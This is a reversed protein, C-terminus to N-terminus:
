HISFSTDPYILKALPPTNLSYAFCCVTEKRKDPPSAHHVLPFCVARADNWLGRSDRSNTSSTPTRM